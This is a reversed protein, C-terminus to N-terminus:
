RLCSYSQFVVKHRTFFDELCWVSQNGKFSNPELIKAKISVEGGSYLGSVFSNPRTCTWDM